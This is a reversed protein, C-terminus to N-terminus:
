KIFGIFGPRTAKNFRSYSGLDRVLTEFNSRLLFFQVRTIGDFKM